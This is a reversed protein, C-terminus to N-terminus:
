IDVKASGSRLSFFSSLKQSIIRTLFKDEIAINNISPLQLLVSGPFLFM